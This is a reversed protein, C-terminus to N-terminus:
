EYCCDLAENIESISRLEIKGESNIHGSISWDGVGVAESNPLM